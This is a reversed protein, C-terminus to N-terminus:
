SNYYYNVDLGLENHLQIYWDSNHYSRYDDFIEEGPLIDRAAVSFKAGSVTNAMDSHNTFRNDDHVLIVSGSIECPYTKDLIEIRSEVDPLTDLFEVFSEPKRFITVNEGERYTWILDGKKIFQKAFLGLGKGPSERVEYKIQMGSNAYPATNPENAYRNCLPDKRNSLPSLIM